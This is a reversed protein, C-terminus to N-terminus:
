GKTIPSQGVSEAFQAQCRAHFAADVVVVDPTGPGHQFMGAAIEREAHQRSAYRSSMGLSPNRWHREVIRKAYEVAREATLDVFVRMGVPPVYTPVCRDAEWDVHSMPESEDASPIIFPTVGDRSNWLTEVRGTKQGRYQMLSFAEGHQYGRLKASM